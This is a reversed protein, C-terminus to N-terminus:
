LQKEDIPWRAQEYREVHGAWLALRAGEPTGEEAGMLSEIEGCLSAHIDDMIRLLEDNM